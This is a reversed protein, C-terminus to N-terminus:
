RLTIITLEPRCNFRIPIGVMGLGVSTYVPCHPGAALGAAYKAYRIPLRPRPGFPIKFQGGHSHGALMLDVRPVMPMQEAYDPNHCLLVRPVDEDVGSLAGALDQRGEWLDDVGALCLRAGGRDLITHRNTLNTIGAKELVLLMAVPDTWHDHNGLVAFKGHPASLRGLAEALNDDIADTRSVYDGTLVILDPKAAKTKEVARRVYDLNILRGVHIDTLQAIRVGDWAPPLNPIPITPTTIKIWKPEVAFANIVSSAAAAAATGAALKM